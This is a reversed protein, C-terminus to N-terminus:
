REYGAGGSMIKYIANEAAAVAQATRDLAPRIFPQAPVMKPGNALPVYYADKVAQPANRKPKPKGQMNPRIATKWEGKPNIYAVYRQIHGYEVLGGHPAIKANWSIHYVAKQPTSLTKSYVQYISRDLNGSKRGVRSVNRKVEDYFVQAAAQSAPRVAEDIDSALAGLMQKLGTLNAKVTLSNRGRSM